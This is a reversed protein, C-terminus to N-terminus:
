SRICPHLHSAGESAFTSSNTTPIWGTQFCFEQNSTVTHPTEDYQDLRRTGPAITIEKPGYAFKRYRGRRDHPGPPAAFISPMAFVACLVLALVARARLPHTANRFLAYNM